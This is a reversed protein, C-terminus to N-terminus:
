VLRSGIPPLYASALGHPQQNDLVFIPQRADQLRFEAIDAEGDVDDTRRRIGVGRQFNDIIIGHDEVKAQGITVAEGDQRGRPPDSLRQRDQDQRRAVADGM